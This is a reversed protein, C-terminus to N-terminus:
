GHSTNGARAALKMQPRVPPPMVAQRSRQRIRHFLYLYCFHIIGLSLLLAGLKVSLVEIAQFVTSAESAKLWMFAYGLNLLYFGVVLLRNVAQAMAPQDAFVEDLFVAGNRFLVRALWVTLGISVTAYAIYVHVLFQSKM